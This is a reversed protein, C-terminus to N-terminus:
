YIRWRRPTTWIRPEVLEGLKEEKEENTPERRQAPIMVKERTEKEETDEEYKM